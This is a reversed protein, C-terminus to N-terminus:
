AYILLQISIYFLDEKIIFAGLCKSHLLISFNLNLSMNDELSKQKCTANFNYPFVIREICFIRSYSRGHQKSVMKQFFNDTFRLADKHSTVSTRDATM